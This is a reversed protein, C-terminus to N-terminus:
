LSLSRLQDPTGHWLGIRLDWGGITPTLTIQSSPLLDDIRLGYWNANELNADTLNANWLDAGYLNAGTLDVGTLNAGALDAETLITGTLNADSLDTDELNLDALNVYSLDARRLDPTNGKKRASEVIKLVESRNM